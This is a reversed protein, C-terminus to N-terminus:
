GPMIKHEDDASETHGTKNVSDSKEINIGEIRASRDIEELTKQIEADDMIKRPIDQIDRSTSVLDRWFPSKVIKRVWRGLNGAEEVAKEPGLVIFALLVIFVIELLGLNFIKV